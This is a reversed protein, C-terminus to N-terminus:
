SKRTNIFRKYELSPAGFNILLGIEFETAKLYNIVQSEEIGGLKSLAKLEVIITEFCIFDARYETNLRKRKYFVPLEAERQFPIELSGFEIALAEQYVPELFGHGLHRHVEM